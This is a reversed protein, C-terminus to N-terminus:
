SFYKSWKQKMTLKEAILLTVKEACYKMQLELEFGKNKMLSVLKEYFCLKNRVRVPKGRLM